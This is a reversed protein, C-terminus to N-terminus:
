TQRGRTRAEGRWDILAGCVLPLAHGEDPVPDSTAGSGAGRRANPSSDARYRARARRTGAPRVAEDREPRMSGGGASVSPDPPRRRAGAHLRVHLASACFHAGGRVYPPKPLKVGRAVRGCPSRGLDPRRVRSPEAGRGVERGGRARRARHKLHGHHPLRCARRPVLPGDEADRAEAGRAPLRRDPHDGSSGAASLGLGRPRPSGGPRTRRRAVPAAQDGSPRGPSRGSGATAWRSASAVDPASATSTTSRATWEAVRAGRRADPRPSFRMQEAARM